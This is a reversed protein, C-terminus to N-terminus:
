VNQKVRRAERLEKARERRLRLVEDVAELEDRTAEKRFVSLKVRRWHKIAEHVLYLYRARRVFGAPQDVLGGPWLGLGTELVEWYKALERPPKAGKRGEAHDAAALILKPRIGYVPQVALRTSCRVM